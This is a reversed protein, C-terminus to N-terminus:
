GLKEEVWSKRRGVMGEGVGLGERRWAERGGVMGGELGQRKELGEKVGVKRSGAGGEGLWEERM